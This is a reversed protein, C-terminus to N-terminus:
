RQHLLRLSNRTKHRIKQSTWRRQLGQHIGQIVIETPTEDPDDESILVIVRVRQPNSIGLLKDLTLEGHENITATTEIAKM